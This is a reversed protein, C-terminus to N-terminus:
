RLWSGPPSGFWSASEGSPCDLAVLTHRTNRADGAAQPLKKELPTEGLLQHAKPILPVSDASVLWVKLGHKLEVHELELQLPQGNVQFTLLSNVRLRWATM